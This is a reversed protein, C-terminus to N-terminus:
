GSPRNMTSTRIFLDKGSDWKLSQVDELIDSIEVGSKLQRLLELRPGIMKSGQLFVCEEVSFLTNHGSSQQTLQVMASELTTALDRNPTFSLKSFTLNDFDIQRVDMAPQLGNQFKVFLLGGCYTVTQQKQPLGDCEEFLFPLRYYLFTNTLSPNTRDMLQQFVLKTEDIGISKLFRFADSTALPNHENAAAFQLKEVGARIREDHDLKQKALFAVCAALAVACFLSRTSFKM